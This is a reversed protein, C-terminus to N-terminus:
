GRPPDRRGLQAIVPDFLQGGQAGQDFHFQGAAGQRAGVDGQDVPQLADVPQYGLVDCTMVSDSIDPAIQLKVARKVEPRLSRRHQRHRFGDPQLKARGHPREVAFEGALVRRM